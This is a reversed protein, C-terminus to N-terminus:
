ITFDEIIDKMSKGLAFSSGRMNRRPFFLSMSM